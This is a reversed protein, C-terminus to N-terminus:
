NVVCASDAIDELVGTELIIHGSKCKNESQSVVGDIRIVFDNNRGIDYRNPNSNFDFGNAEAIQRIDNLNRITEIPKFKHFTMNGINSFYRTPEANIYKQRIEDATLVKSDSSYEVYDTVEIQFWDVTFNYKVTFYKEKYYDNIWTNTSLIKIHSNFYADIMKLQGEPANIKFFIEKWIPFYTTYLADSSTQNTPKAIAPKPAKNITSTSVEGSNEPVIKEQSVPPLAPKNNQLYVFSLGALFLVGLGIISLKKM